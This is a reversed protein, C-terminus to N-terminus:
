AESGGRSPVIERDNESLLVISPDSHISFPAVTMVLEAGEMRSGRQAMSQTRQPNLQGIAGAGGNAEHHSWCQQQYTVHLRHQLQPMHRKIEGGYIRSIEANLLPEAEEHDHFLQYRTMSRGYLLITSVQIQVCIQRMKGGAAEEWACSIARQHYLIGDVSVSRM